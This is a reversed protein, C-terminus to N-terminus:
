PTSLVGRQGLLIQMKIQWFSTIPVTHERHITWIEEERDCTSTESSNTVQMSKGNDVDDVSYIVKDNSTINETVTVDRGIGRM